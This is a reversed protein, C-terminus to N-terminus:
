KFHVNSCSDIESLFIFITALQLKVKILHMINTERSLSPKFYHTKSKAINEVRQQLQLKIGTASIQVNNGKEFNLCM